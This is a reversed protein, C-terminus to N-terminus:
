GNLFSGGGHWSQESTDGAGGRDCAGRGGDRVPHRTAL